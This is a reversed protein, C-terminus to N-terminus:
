RKLQAHRIRTITKRSVGIYSAVMHLPVRAFIEPYTKIFDDYKEEPSASLAKFVRERALSYNRSVLQDSFNKLQPINEMLQDFHDKTWLILETDELADIIYNSPTQYHYSDPDVTWWYQMAFSILHETGDEKIRYGRLLGKTVFAKHRCIDGEHLYVENKRLTRKVATSLMLQVQQATLNSKERIYAEFEAFM